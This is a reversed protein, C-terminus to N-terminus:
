FFVELNFNELNQNLKFINKEIEFFEEINCLIDNYIKKIDILEKELYLDKLKEIKQFNSTYIAM